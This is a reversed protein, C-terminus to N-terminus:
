KVGGKKCVAEGFTVGARRAEGVAARLLMGGDARAGASERSTTRWAEGRSTRGTTCGGGPEVFLDTTLAVSTTVLREVFLLCRRETEGWKRPTDSAEVVADDM